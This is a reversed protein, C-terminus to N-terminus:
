ILMNQERFAKLIAINNTSLKVDEITPPGCREGWLFKLKELEGAVM